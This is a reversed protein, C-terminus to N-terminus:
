VYIRQGIDIGSFERVTGGGSRIDDFFALQLENVCGVLLSIIFIYDNNM